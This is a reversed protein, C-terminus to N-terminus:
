KKSNMVPKSYREEFDPRDFIWSRKRFRHEDNPNFGFREEYGCEPCRIAYEYYKKDYILMHNDCDYVTMYDGCWDDASDIMYVCGCATCHVTIGDKGLLGSKLIRM